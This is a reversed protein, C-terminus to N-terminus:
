AKVPRRTAARLYPALVDNQSAATGDYTLSVLPVGTAREIEEGMAQTVLGPCCYAPSTQVFLALDPHTEVLHFVKLLNDYSEGDHDLRVGFRSLIDESNSPAPSDTRGLLPDVIKKYRTGLTRMLTLVTKNTVVRGWHGDRAWRRFYSEAVVDVFETFPTVVVEGGLDEIRAILGQNMVDNDRVYFDGFVAVKPRGRAEVPIEDFQAVAWHTVERLSLEGAFARLFQQHV